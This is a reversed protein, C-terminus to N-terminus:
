TVTETATFYRSWCVFAVCTDCNSKTSSFLPFLQFITPYSFFPKCAYIIHSCAKKHIVAKMAQSVRPKAEQNRWTKRM